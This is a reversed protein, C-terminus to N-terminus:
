RVRDPVSRPLFDLTGDAAKWAVLGKDIAGYIRSGALTLRRVVAGGSSQLDKRPVDQGADWLQVSGDAGTSCIRERDVFVLDLIAGQHGEHVHQPMSNSGEVGWVRVKQDDSGSALLTSDPSFALRNIRGTHGELTRVAKGNRAEWLKVKRN